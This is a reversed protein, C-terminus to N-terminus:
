IGHNHKHKFMYKINEQRIATAVSLVMVTKKLFNSPYAM